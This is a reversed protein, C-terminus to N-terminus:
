LEYDLRNKMKGPVLGLSVQRQFNLVGELYEAGAFSDEEAGTRLSVQRPTAQLSSIM